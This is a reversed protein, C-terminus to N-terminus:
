MMPIKHSLFEPAMVMGSWPLCGINPSQRRCAPMVYAVWFTVVMPGLASALFNAELGTAPTTDGEIINRM